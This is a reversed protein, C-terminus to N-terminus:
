RTLDATRWLELEPLGRMTGSRGTPSFGQAAYLRQAAVNGGVVWLRLRVGGVGAWLQAAAEVLLTALGRGRAAPDVWLGNVDADGPEAASTRSSLVTVTGLSRGHEVAHLTAASALRRRWSAEDLGREHDHTAEFADPADLLAALRVERVRQWDNPLM